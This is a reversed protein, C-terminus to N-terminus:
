HRRATRRRFRIAAGGALLLAALGTIGIVSTGTSALSGGSPAPSETAAV